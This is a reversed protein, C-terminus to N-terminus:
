RLPLGASFYDSGYGGTNHRLTLTVRERDLAPGAEHLPCVSGVTPWGGGRLLVLDGDGTLWEAAPEQDTALPDLGGPIEWVRFLARGRLTAIAIIGAATRPDRHPTIFKRGGDTRSWQAHNFAPLPMAGDAAQSMGTEITAALSRVIEAAVSVDSNSSLGAQRVGAGGETEPVSQWLEPASAELAAAVAAPLAGELRAWGRHIVASVVTTWEVGSLPVEAEV